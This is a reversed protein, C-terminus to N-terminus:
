MVKRHTYGHYFTQVARGNRLLSIPLVPYGMRWFAKAFRSPLVRCLPKQSSANCSAQTLFSGALGSLCPYPGHCGPIEPICLVTGDCDVFYQGNGGLASPIGGVISATRRLTFRDLSSLHGSYCFTQFALNSGFAIAGVEPWEDWLLRGDPRNNRRHCPAIGHPM